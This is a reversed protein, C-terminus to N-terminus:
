SAVQDDAALFVLDLLPEGALAEIDAESLEDMPVTTPTKSWVRGARRFGDRRATVVVSHSILSDLSQNDGAGAPPLKGQDDSASIASAPQTSARDAVQAPSRASVDAPTGPTAPASTNQTVAATKPAAPAKKPTAM